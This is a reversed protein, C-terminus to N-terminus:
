RGSSSAVSLAPRSDQPTLRLGDYRCVDIHPYLLRRGGHFTVRIDRLCRGAPVDFTMSNLGGQLPEGLEVEHFDDGDAPAIALATVSDFTANVLNFHRMPRRGADGHMAHAPAIAVVSGLAAFFMVAFVAARTQNM